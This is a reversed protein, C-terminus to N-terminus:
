PLVISKEPHWFKQCDTNYSLVVIFNRGSDSVLSQLISSFLIILIQWHTMLLSREFPVKGQKVGMNEITLDSLLRNKGLNLHKLGLFSKILSSLCQKRKENNKRFEVTKKKEFSFPYNSCLYINIYKKIESPQM